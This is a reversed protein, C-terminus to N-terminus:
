WCRRRYRPKKGDILRMIVYESVIGTVTVVALLALTRLGFFYVSALLVPILSILVRTMIKQKLFYNKIEIM